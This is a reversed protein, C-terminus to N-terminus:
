LIMARETAVRKVRFPVPPLRTDAHSKGMGALQADPLSVPQGGGPAQLCKAEQSVVATGIEAERGAASAQPFRSRPSPSSRCRRDLVVSTADGYSRM